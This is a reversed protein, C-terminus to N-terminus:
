QLVRRVSDALLRVVTIQNLYGTAPLQASQQYRRIAQRTQGDFTGDVPGTDYGEAALRQEVARRTIQNLGLQDEAQRAADNESSDQRLAAIRDRAAASFRGQPFQRLYDDYAAISNAQEAQNWAQTDRALADEGRLESLRERAEAAYRGDPFRDLFRGLGDVDRGRGTEDWLADEARAREAKRAREEEELLAARRRAQEEIDQIMPRTLYGTRDRDNAGQWGEIAGRTGPGFVGDIGRTDYGLLVLDRQIAQRAAQDLALAEEARREDAFPEDRLADLREAAEDAFLGDPYSDLYLTYSDVSDRDRMRTWLQREASEGDDQPVAPEVADRAAEDSLFALDPTVFGAVSANNDGSVRERISAGPKALTDSLIAGAARTGARIVTVGQPIELAGLGSSLGNGVPDRKALDTGLLLVARTPANTMLSMVTSLPIASLTADVLSAGEADVPLFWTEADSHVFRGSLVVLLGDASRSQQELQRLAVGIEDREANRLVQADVGAEELARAARVVADGQRLNALEAYRANGVVLAADEAWAAPALLCILATLRALHM